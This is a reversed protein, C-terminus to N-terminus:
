WFDVSLPKQAFGLCNSEDFMKICRQASQVDEYLVYGIKYNSFAEGNITQMHNKLKISAIPGAETFKAKLQEETVDKPIFKVFINSKFAEKQNKIIPNSTSHALDNEKRQIHQSVFISQDNVKTKMHTAELAAKAHEHSKFSVFGTGNNKINVSASDIAGFPAFLKKLADDTYNNPLNQVFLNTYKEGQEERDEKKVHHQVEIKKGHQNSNNLEKISKEASEVTEFQIYGFCRSQGDQFVELKASKIAGYKSFLDSLGKQDMEKPLNKVLVNAKSDFDKDKKKSLVIQKGDIVANNMGELCRQAEEDSYFNLYGYGRSQKSEKSFMVKVGAISYGNQKFYRYLDLDFTKLSLNGIYLSVGM